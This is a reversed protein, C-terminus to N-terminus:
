PATKNSKRFTLKAALFGTLATALTHGVSSGHSACITLLALASFLIAGALLMTPSFPRGPNKM